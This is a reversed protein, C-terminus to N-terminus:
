IRGNCSRCFSQLDLAITFGSVQDFIKKAGRLVDLYSFIDADYDNACSM